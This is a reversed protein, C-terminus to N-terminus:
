HSGASYRVKSSKTSDTTIVEKTTTTARTGNVVKPAVGDPPPIAGPGVAFDNLEPSIKYRRNMDDTVANLNPGSRVISPQMFILLESKEKTKTTTSFLHGLLPIQSLVPIGSHDDHDRTIILGGLVVTQGNPVTVTTIMSRTIITPVTLDGVTQNAGVEDSVLSIQMTIEDGSNILPIVELKLVVDKYEINTQVGGTTGTASSNNYTNTPVAIQQGSSIVGKKNNATYISPRSLVSFKGTSQLANLYVSYARGITGYINLGSSAPFNSPNLLSSPNILATATSNTPTNGIGVGTPKNGFTKLFNVGFDLDDNLTLQGFVTSIMVQDAKVDVEDLLKEIVELNAPPGQVIISNTINDAVLLTRGVLVSQPATSVTPESLSGATSSSGTAGSGSSSGLGSSGSTGSSSTRSGSSSGTSGTSGTSRNSGGQSGGRNGGQGFNAGSAGQGGAGGSSGTGTFNRTLADSAIPLFDGASLFRLKRRLFNKEDTKTDFDKILGAVYEVDTIKGMALIRNTRPDPIIQVPVDEGASGGTAAAAPNGPQGPQGGNQPGRQTTTTHQGSSQQQASFLDNLTQALETVDAYQIKFMRRVSPANAVDVEGKLQILNRIIPTAATIVLASANPVPVVSGYGASAPGTIANFISAATDPKLFKLTMVYAIVQDGEPLVDNEDYIPVIGDPKNGGGGGAFLLKDVGDGSPVFVFNEILASMKLLETVQRYTLPKDPSAEQVFRFEAASAAASVVVRRGTYTTYLGALDDGTMKLAAFPRTEKRDPIPINNQNEEAAGAPAGAVPAAGGPAAPAGAVPVAPAGAPRGPVAPRAGGPQSPVGPPLQPATPNGSPTQAFASSLALLGFPVLRRRIAHM